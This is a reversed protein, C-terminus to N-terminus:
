RTVPPLFPTLSSSDEVSIRISPAPAQLMAPSKGNEIVPIFPTDMLLLIKMVPLLHQKVGLYYMQM